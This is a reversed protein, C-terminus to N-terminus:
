SHVKTIFFLITKNRMETSPLQVETPFAAVAEPTPAQFPHLFGLEVMERLFTKRYAIMDDIKHM